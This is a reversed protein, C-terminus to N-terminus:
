NRTTCVPVLFVFTIHPEILDVHPDYKRRFDNIFEPDIQPYHVLAYFM